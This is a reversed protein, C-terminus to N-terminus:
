KYCRRKLKPSKVNRLWDIFVFIFAIMLIGAPIYSIISTVSTVSMMNTDDLKTQRKASTTSLQQSPLEDVTTTTTIIDRQTSPVTVTEFNFDAVDAPLPEDNRFFRTEQLGTVDSFGTPSSSLSHMGSENMDSLYTVNQKKAMINSNNSCIAPCSLVGAAGGCDGGGTTPRTPAPTPPQTTPPPTPPETPPQTPPSPTTPGPSPTPGPSTTPGTSPTPGPAVTPPPVPGGFKIRMNDSLTLVSDYADKGPILPSDPYIKNFFERASMTQQTDRVIGTPTITNTVRKGGYNNAIWMIDYASLRQNRRTAVGNETLCAPYNYLMISLPDFYSGNLTAPDYPKLININVQDESWQWACKAYAYVVEKKWKLIPGHVINQHEHIMGFAHGLEHMFTQTEFWGFHINEGNPGPSRQKGVGSFSKQDNRFLVKLTAKSLDDTFSIKNNIIPMFREKIVRIVADRQFAKKDVAKHWGDYFESALPDAKLTPDNSSIPKVVLGEQFVESESMMFGFIIETSPDWVASKIFAARLAGHEAPTKALSFSKQVSVPPLTLCVNFSKNDCGAPPKCTDSSSSLTTELSNSPLDCSM